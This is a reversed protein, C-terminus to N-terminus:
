QFKSRMVKLDTVIAVLAVVELIKEQNLKLPMLAMEDQTVPLDEIMIHCKVTGHVIEEDIQPDRKVVRELNIGLLAKGMMLGCIDIHMGAGLVEYETSSRM